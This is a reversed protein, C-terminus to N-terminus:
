KSVFHNAASYTVAHMLVGLKIIDASLENHTTINDVTDGHAIKHRRNLIDEVYAHWLTDKESKSAGVTSSFSYDGSLGSYPFLYLKSRFGALDRLLVYNVREDNKFVFDFRGGSITKIISSYGIKEFVSDIYAASPNKNDSEKYKFAALDIAVSNKEFFSLLQKIRAEIEKAPVGDFFVIKECFARKMAAPMKSFDKYNYHLDQAIAKTLEKLFGELHSAILVCCARCVSNYLPENEAEISEAHRVLLNLEGLREPISQAVLFVATSM